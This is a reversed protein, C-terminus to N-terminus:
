ALQFLGLLITCATSCAIVGGIFILFSAVGSMKFFCPASVCMCGGGGGGGGGDIPGGGSGVAAAAIFIYRAGAGGGDSEGGM